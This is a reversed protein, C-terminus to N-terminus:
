KVYEINAQMVEYDPSDKYIFAFIECNDENWAADLTYTYSKVDKSGSITTPIDEGWTSNIAGRYVHRHDYDPVDVGDDLQWDILHDETIGVQLKYTVGTEGDSLWETEVEITVERNSPNYTNTITIEAIPAIDKLAIIEAEWQSVQFPAGTNIRSVMGKPLGGPPFITAYIDSDPTRFDTEYSGSGTQPQNFTQDGAHLSIPIVQEGYVGVLRKVEAAGQPCNTCFHGTYEELLIRRVAVDTTTTTTDTPGEDQVVLPTEVKDCGFFLMTLITAILPLFLKKM